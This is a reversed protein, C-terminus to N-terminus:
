RTAFPAKDRRALEATAEEIGKVVGACTPEFFEPGAELIFEKFSFPQTFGEKQLRKETDYALIIGRVNHREVAGTDFKEVGQDRIAPAFAVRAAKLRIAERVATTGIREITQLSFQKDDGYGLLLIQKPKMVGQPPTLLLTELENGVFAGRNRLAAIPGGMMKDFDVIVSIVTDGEPKHKFYCMVQLDTELDQPKTARVKLTLDNPTHFTKELVKKKEATQSTAAVFCGTGFVLLILVLMRTPKM